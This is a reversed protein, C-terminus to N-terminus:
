IIESPNGKCYIILSEVSIGVMHPASITVSYGIGQPSDRYPNQKCFNARDVLKMAQEVRPNKVIGNGSFSLYSDRVSLFVLVM